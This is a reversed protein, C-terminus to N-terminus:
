KDDCISKEETLDIDVDTNSNNIKFFSKSDFLQTKKQIPPLIESTRMPVLMSVRHHLGKAIDRIAIKATRLEKGKIIRKRTM